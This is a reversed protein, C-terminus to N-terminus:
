KQLFCIYKTDPDCVDTLRELMSPSIFLIRPNDIEFLLMSAQLVEETMTMGILNLIHGYKHKNDIYKGKRLVSEIDTNSLSVKSTGHEIIINEYDTIARECM